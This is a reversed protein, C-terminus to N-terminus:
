RPQPPLVGREASWRDGPRLLAVRVAPRSRGVLAKFADATGTTKLVVTAISRTFDHDLIPIVTRPRLTDVAAAAEQSDMALRRGWRLSLGDAPLFAVDIRPFRGGVRELGPFWTTEAVFLVHTEAWRIVYAYTEGYHAVPIATVTVPGIRTAEWAVAAHVAAFGLARVSSAISPPTVVPVQKDPLDGLFRKDFHDRHGHTVVILQPNPIRSPSLGLPEPHTGSLPVEHFWPDTLVVFGDFDLIFTAHGISTVALSRDVRRYPTDLAPPLSTCGVTLLVAVLAAVRLHEVMLGRSRRLRRAVFITRRLDTLRLRSMSLAYETGFNM